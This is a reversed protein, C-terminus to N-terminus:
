KRLYVSGSTAGLYGYKPLVVVRYTGRGLNITRTEKKGKTKYTKLAAWSGDAQQRQVQFRWYGKGKNPNVDVYLKSKSKRPKVKVAAIPANPWTGM